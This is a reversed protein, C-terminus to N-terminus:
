FKGDTMGKDKTHHQTSLERDPGTVWSFQDGYIREDRLHNVSGEILRSMKKKGLITISPVVDIVKKGYVVRDPQFDDPLVKLKLRTEWYERSDGSHEALAPLFIGKWWARQQDTIYEFPSLTKIAGGAKLESWIQKLPVNFTPEDDIIDIVEHTPM